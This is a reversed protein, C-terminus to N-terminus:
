TFLRAPERVLYKQIFAKMKEPEGAYNYFHKAQIFELYMKIANNIERNRNTWYSTDRILDDLERLSDLDIKLCIPKQNVMAVQKQRESM